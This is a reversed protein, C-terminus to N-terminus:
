DFKKCLINYLNESTSNWSYKQSEMRCEKCMKEYLDKNESLYIIKEAIKKPYPDILFGHIGNKVIETFGGNNCGIVPKGSAMSELAVMGFPERLPTFVTCFCESYLEILKKESVKEWFKVRNELGMELVLKKLTESYVGDGVIWLVYDKLFEMSKIALDVRKEPFLRNVVLIINEKGKKFKYNEWDVGPYIVHNINKKYVNELYNKTYYSNAVIENVTTYHDNIYKLIDSYSYFLIKKFLSIDNRKMLYKKLDYLMRPPEHPYWVSPKNKILNTPFLHPNYVDHKGIKKSLGKMELPLTMLSLSPNKIIPKILEVNVNIRFEKLLNENFSTTYVTVDNNMQWRSLCELFFKEGGGISDLKPIIMGINMGDDM